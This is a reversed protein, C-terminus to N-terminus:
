ANDAAAEEAAEVVEETADEKPMSGALKLRLAEFAKMDKAHQKKNADDAIGKLFGEMNDALCALAAALIRQNSVPVGLKEKVFAKLNTLCELDAKDIATQSYGRERKAKEETPTEILGQGQLASEVVENTVIEPAEVQAAVVKKAATKKTSMKNTKLPKSTTKESKTYGFSASPNRVVATGM